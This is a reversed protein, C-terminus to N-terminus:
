LLLTSANLVSLVLKNIKRLFSKEYARNDEFNHLVYDWNKTLLFFIQFFFCNFLSSVSNLNHRNDNEFERVSKKSLKRNKRIKTRDDPMSNINNQKQALEPAYGHTRPLDM